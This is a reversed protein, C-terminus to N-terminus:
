LCVQGVAVPGLNKARECLVEGVAGANTQFHVVEVQMYLADHRKCMRKCAVKRGYPRMNSQVGVASHMM